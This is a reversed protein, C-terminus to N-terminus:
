KLDGETLNNKWVIYKEVGDLETKSYDPNSSRNKRFHKVDEIASRRLSLVDAGGTKVPPNDNYQSTGELENLTKLEEPKEIGCNKCYNGETIKFEKEGPLPFTHELNEWEHEKCYIEWDDAEFDTIDFDYPEGGPGWIQKDWSPRYSDKIGLHIFFSKNFISKKRVKKGEKMWKIAQNFNAM